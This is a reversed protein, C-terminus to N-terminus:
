GVLYTVSRVMGAPIQLTNAHQGETISQVIVMYEGNVLALWGVTEVITDSSEFDEGDLWGGGHSADEWVVLVPKLNLRASAMVNVSGLVLSM